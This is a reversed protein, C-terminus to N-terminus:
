GTPRPRKESRGDHGDAAQPRRRDVGALGRALSAPHHRGGHPDGQRDRRDERARARRLARHVGGFLRLGAACMGFVPRRLAVLGPRCDGGVATSRRPAVLAPHDARRLEQLPLPRLQGAVLLRPLVQDADGSAQSVHAAEVGLGVGCPDRDVADLAELVVLQQGRADPVRRRLGVRRELADTAVAPDREITEGPVRGAVDPRHQVHVLDAPDVLVDDRRASKLRNRPRLCPRPDLRNRPPGGIVRPPDATPRNVSSGNDSAPVRPPAARRGRPATGRPPEHDDHLRQLDVRVDDIQTNM